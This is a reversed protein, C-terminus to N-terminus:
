AQGVGSFGRWDFRRFAGRQPPPMMDSRRAAHDRFSMAADDSDAIQSGKGEKLGIWALVLDNAAQEAVPGHRGRNGKVAPQFVVRRHPEEGVRDTPLSLM